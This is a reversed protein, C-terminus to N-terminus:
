GHMKKTAEILAKGADSNYGENLSPISALGTKGVKAVTAVTISSILATAASASFGYNAIIYAMGGLAAGGKFASKASSAVKGCMLIGRGLKENEPSRSLEDMSYELDAIGLQRGGITQALGSNSNYWTKGPEIAMGLARRARDTEAYSSTFDSLFVKQRGQLDIGPNNKSLSKMAETLIHSGGRHSTWEVFLGNDHAEKMISALVGAAEKGEKDLRTNGLKKLFKWGAKAASKDSPVYFLPYGTARLKIEENKQGQSIHLPLLKAAHQLGDCYGNIGVKIPNDISKSLSSFKKISETPREGTQWGEDEDYTVDWLASRHADDRTQVIPRVDMILVDTQHGGYYDGCLEYEIEFGSQQLCRRSPNGNKVFSNLPVTSSRLSEIARTVALAHYGTASAQESMDKFGKLIGHMNESALLVRGAGKNGYPTVHGTMQIGSM